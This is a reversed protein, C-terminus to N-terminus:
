KKNCTMTCAESSGPFDYSYVISLSNGNITGSGSFTIVLDKDTVTQLPITLDNGSVTGSATAGFDGFNSIFVANEAAEATKIKIKYTYIASACNEVVNYTALFQERDAPKDKNCGPAVALFALFLLALPRFTKKM